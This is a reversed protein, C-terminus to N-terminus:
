LENETAVVLTQETVRLVRHDVNGNAMARAYRLAEEKSAFGRVEVSAHLDELATNEIVLFNDKTADFQDLACREVFAALKDGNMGKGRVVGAGQFKKPLQKKRM